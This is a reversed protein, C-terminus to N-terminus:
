VRRNEDIKKRIIKYASKDTNMITIIVASRKRATHRGSWMWDPGNRLALKLEVIIIDARNAEAM